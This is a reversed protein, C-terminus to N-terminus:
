RNWPMRALLSGMPCANTLGAFVLGFGVWASLGYWYPHALWGLVVGALVMTGAVTRVQRDLSVAWRGREVPLGAKEWGMTGGEVNVVNDYGAAAFKACAMSSRDGSKCIVYLPRGATGNREGMVAAPDLSHLPVNRARAAHIQRYEAPTRVDILDVPERQSLEHLQQCSISAFSQTSM